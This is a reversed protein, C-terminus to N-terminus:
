HLILKGKPIPGYHLEYSFRHSRTREFAGYGNHVKGGLWLWCAGLEKRIIPGNKDIKKWFRLEPSKKGRLYNRCSGCVWNEKISSQLTSKNSYVLKKGCNPCSRTFM